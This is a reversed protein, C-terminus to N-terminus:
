YHLFVLDCVVTQAPQIAGSNSATSQQKFPPTTAIARRKRSNNQLSTINTKLISKTHYSLIYATWQDGTLDVSVSDIRSTENFYHVYAPRLDDARANLAISRLSYGEALLLYPSEAFYICLKQIIAVSEIFIPM